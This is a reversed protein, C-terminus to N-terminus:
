AERIAQLIPKRYQFATEYRLAKSLLITALILCVPAALAAGALIWPHEDHYFSLSALMLPAVIGGFAASWFLSWRSYRVYVVPVFAGLCVGLLVGSAVGTLSAGQIGAAVSAIGLLCLYASATLGYGMVWRAFTKTTMPLARILRAREAALQGSYMFACLAMIGVLGSFVFDVTDGIIQINIFMVVVLPWGRLPELLVMRWLPGM